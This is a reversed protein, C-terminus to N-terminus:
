ADWRFGLRGKSDVFAAVGGGICEDEGDGGGNEEGYLDVGFGMNM